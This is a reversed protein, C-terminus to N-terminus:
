RPSAPAGGRTPLRFPGADIAHTSPDPKRRRSLVDILGQLTFGPDPEPSTDGDLIRYELRIWFQADRGLASLSGFPIALQDVCWAEAASAALHSISQSRPDVTAIAFREEWLDYSLAFNRRAAAAPVKSPAPLVLLTLEVRVSQGDKLRSLPEGKLFALGPAHVKLQDGSANVTLAQTSAASPWALLAVFFLAPAVRRAVM